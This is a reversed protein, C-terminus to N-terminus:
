CSRVKAARTEEHKKQKKNLRAPSERKRQSGSPESCSYESSSPENDRAPRRPKGKAKLGSSRHNAAERMLSEIKADKENVSRELEENRRRLSVTSSAADKARSSM